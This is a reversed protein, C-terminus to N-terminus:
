VKEDIGVVDTDNIFHYTGEKDIQYTENPIFWVIDGLSPTEGIDTGRKEIFLEGFADPAMKIIRGRKIPTRLKDKVKFKVDGTEKDMVDEGYVIQFGKEKLSPAEQELKYLKAIHEEVSEQVAEILLRGLFPRPLHEIRM